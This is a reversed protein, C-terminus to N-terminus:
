MRGQERKKIQELIWRAFKEVRTYVGPLGPRGCGIGASMVGVLVLRGDEVSTLGGGSDGQCGDVKGEERGACLHEPTLSVSKGRSSFSRECEENEMIPLRALHIEDTPTGGRKVEDDYGWGALYGRGRGTRHSSEPLCIPQAYKSWVVPRKLRILALDHVFKPFKYDPHKIVEEVAIQINFSTFFFTM